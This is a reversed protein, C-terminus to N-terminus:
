DMPSTGTPLNFPYRISLKRISVNTRQHFFLRNGVSLFRFFPTRFLVPLKTVSQLITSGMAFADVDGM